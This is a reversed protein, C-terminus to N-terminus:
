GKLRGSNKHDTKCQRTCFRKLAKKTVSSKGCHECQFEREEHAHGNKIKWAKLRCPKSCYEPATGEKTGAMEKETGCQKCTITFKGRALRQGAHMKMVVEAAFAQGEPTNKRWEQEKKWLASMRKSNAALLQQRSEDSLHEKNHASPTLCELNGIENNLTNTDKHHIHNGEPIPGHSKAYIYRHLLREGCAARTEFYCRASRSKAKPYRYFEIGDIEIKESEASPNVCELNAIDNNLPNGDKHRIQHGRPIAGNAKAYIYRHLYKEGISRNAQYLDKSWAKKSYTRRYFTIGDLTIKDSEM